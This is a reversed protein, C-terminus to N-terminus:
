KATVNSDTRDLEQAPALRNYESLNVYVIIIHISFTHLRSFRIFESLKM